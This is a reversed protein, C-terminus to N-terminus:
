GANDYVQTWYSYSQILGLHDTQSSLIIDVAGPERIPEIAEPANMFYIRGQEEHTRNLSLVNQTRTETIQHM